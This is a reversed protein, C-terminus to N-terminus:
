ASGTGPGCVTSFPQSLAVPDCAPSFSFCVKSLSATFVVIEFFDGMRKLFEDVGPRKVVYVSHVVDEIEVPVIYDANPVFKFSSHVLTEDLDLVLCKRGKDIPLLEPLLPRPEGLEDHPIGAGGQMILRQEEEQEWQFWQEDLYAAQDDPTVDEEDTEDGNTPFSARHADEDELLSIPQPVHVDANDGILHEGDYIDDQSRQGAVPPGVATIASDNAPENPEFDLLDVASSSSRALGRVSRTTTPTPPTLTSGPPVVAASLVDETEDRPLVTGGVISQNSPFLSSRRSGHTWRSDSSAKHRMPPAQLNSPGGPTAPTTPEVIDNLTRAAPADNAIPGASDKTELLVPDNKSSPALSSATAMAKSLNPTGSVVSKRGVEEDPSPTAGDRKAQGTSPDPTLTDGISLATGSISARNKNERLPTPPALLQSSAVSGGRAMISGDAQGGNVLRAKESAAHQSPADHLIEKMSSSSCTLLLALRRWLSPEQYDPLPPTQPSPGETAGKADVGSPGKEDFRPNSGPAHGVTPLPLPRPAQTILQDANPHTGSSQPPPNNELPTPAAMRQPPAQPQSAPAAALASSCQDSAMTPSSPGPQPEPQCEMVHAPVSGPATESECQADPEAESEPPLPLGHAQLAHRQQHHFHKRAASAAAAIPDAGAPVGLPPVANRAPLGTPPAATLRPLAFLTQGPAVQTIVSAASM